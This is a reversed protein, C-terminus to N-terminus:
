NQHGRNSTVSDLSTDPSTTPTWSANEKTMSILKGVARMVSADSEVTHIQDLGVWRADLADSAAQIRRSPAVFAFRLDFHKHTPESKRAPIEHIDVDFLGSSFSAPEEVGTEEALERLAGALTSPDNPDIHGGPQLWRHLKGHFILLVASRDPSLLFASATFHGPQFHSRLFPDAPAKLLALMEDRFDSEQKDAPQHSELLKCLPERRPM